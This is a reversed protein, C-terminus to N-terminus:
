IMHLYNCNLKNRKLKFAKLKSKSFGDLSFKKLRYISERNTLEDSRRSVCHEKERFFGKEIINFDWDRFGQSIRVDYVQSLKRLEPIELLSDRTHGIRKLTRKTVYLEKFNPNSNNAPLIQMTLGKM